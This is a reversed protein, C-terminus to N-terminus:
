AVAAFPLVEFSVLHGLLIHGIEHAMTWRVRRYNDVRDDYVVLYDSSGRQHHTKADAGEADICFLIPTTAIIGCNLGSVYMSM